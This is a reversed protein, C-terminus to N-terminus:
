RMAIAGLCFHVRGRYSAQEISGGLGGILGSLIGKARSLSHVKLLVLWRLCFLPLVSRLM